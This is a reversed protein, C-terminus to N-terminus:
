QHLGSHLAAVHFAQVDTLQAIGRTDCWAAFRRAANLYHQSLGALRSVIWLCSRCLRMADRVNGGGGRVRM